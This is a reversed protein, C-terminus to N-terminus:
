GLAIAMAVSANNAIVTMEASTSAPVVWSSGEYIKLQDTTTNWFMDGEDNASAPDSSGIRYRNAYNNIDTVSTACTAMATVNASTGLTDMDTVIDPVALIAMDDTITTSALIAMDDTVTTSGLIAMDAVADVTGLRGIETAKAAVAGIDTADGAVAVIETDIGAVTTVNSDIVGVKNVNAINDAVTDVQAINLNTGSTSTTGDYGTTLTDIQTQNATTPTTRLWTTNTLDYVKMVANTTDFYLCGDILANSDNDLTPDSAKAGLFRDDFTDYSAAANTASTAANTESTSANTESTASATASAASATASTAAATASTAASPAPADWSSGNYFRVDTDASNYYVAGVSLANGDNDLTPDTSKTGLFRDDFNDFTTNVSTESAAANTASTAAATQSSSAATASASAKASYHLGSFLTGDVTSDEAKSAWEKAAGKSATDTIGTGGVAWAKASHSATDGSVAGDVKIAFDKASGGTSATTGQAYELASYKTTDASTSANVVTSGTLQAFREATLSHQEIIASNSIISLAEAVTFASSGAGIYVPSKSSM